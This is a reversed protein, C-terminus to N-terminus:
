DKERTPFPAVRPDIRVYIGSETVAGCYVCNETDPIVRRVPDSNERASWCDDCCPQSWSLAM